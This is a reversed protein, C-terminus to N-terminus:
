AHLVIRSWVCNIDGHYAWLYLILLIEREMILQILVQQWLHTFFRVFFLMYLLAVRTQKQAPRATPNLHYKYIFATEIIM